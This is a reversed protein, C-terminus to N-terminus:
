GSGELDIEREKELLGVFNTLCQQGGGFGSLSGAHCPELSMCVKAEM